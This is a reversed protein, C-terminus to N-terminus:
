KKEGEADTSSAPPTASAAAKEIQKKKQVLDEQVKISKEVQEVAREIEVEMDPLKFREAILKGNWRQLLMVDEKGANTQDEVVQAVAEAEQLSPVPSERSIQRTPYKLGATYMEDLATSPMPKLLKQDGLFELHKAGYLAIASTLTM